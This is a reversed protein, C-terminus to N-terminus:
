FGVLVPLANAAFTWSSSPFDPGNSAAPLTWWTGSNAGNFNAPTVNAGEVSNSLPTASIILYSDGAKFTMGTSRAYNNALASSSITAGVVRGINGGATNRAVRSNLAVCNQVTGDSNDGVIGGVWGGSTASVVGTAYCFEITGGSNIGVVGGVEESGSVSCTTYCNAMVSSSNSVIGAIGGVYSDTSSVTGGTVMCNTVSASERVCGAVGGIYRNTSTIATVTVSCHDITAGTGYIDGAVGGVNQSGGSISVGTLRVNWVKGGNIRGFLGRFDASGTIKLGSIEKGDGDYAGLFPQTKSGIPTWGNGNTYPAVGLALNATQKYFKAAANYTANGANVLQALLALEAASTIVYPNAASNGTGTFAIITATAPSLVSGSCNAATVMVSLPHGIDELKPRYTSTTAGTIVTGSRLWQYSLTGLATTPTATLGTTVATLPQDFRTTGSINVVGGLASTPATVTVTAVHSRVSTAGGTAGVICYYYYPSGTAMLTTPVAFTQTNAGTISTGGTNSNTTNSYWQYNLTASLTVSAAVSLNGSISGQAFSRNAPQVSITIVPVSTPDIKKCEMASGFFFLCLAGLIIKKMINFILTICVSPNFLAYM